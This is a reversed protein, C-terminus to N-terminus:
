GNQIVGDAKSRVGPTCLFLHQDWVRRSPPPSAVPRVILHPARSSSINSAPTSPEQERTSLTKISGPRSGFGRWASYSSSCAYRFPWLSGGQKFHPSRIVEKARLILLISLFLWAM